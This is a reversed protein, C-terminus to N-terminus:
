KSSVKQAGELSTILKKLEDKTLELSLHKGEGRSEIDFDVSALPENIKALKDSSM